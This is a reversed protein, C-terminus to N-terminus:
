LPCISTSMFHLRGRVKGKNWGEVPFVGVFIISCCTETATPRASKLLCDCSPLLTFYWHWDASHSQHREKSNEPFANAQPWPILIGQKTRMDSGIASLLKSFPNLSCNAPQCGWHIFSYFQILLIFKGILFEALKRSFLWVSDSELKGTWHVVPAGFSDLSTANQVPM